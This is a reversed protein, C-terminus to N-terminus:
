ATGNLFYMLFQFKAEKSSEKSAAKHFACGLNMINQLLQQTTQFCVFSFVVGVLFLLKQLSPKKFNLFYMVLALSSLLEGKAHWWLLASPSGQLPFFFFFFVGFLACVCVCGGVFSFLLTWLWWTAKFNGGWVGLHGRPSPCCQKM